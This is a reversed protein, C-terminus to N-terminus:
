GTRPSRRRPYAPEEAVATVDHGPERLAAAIVLSFKEDLLLRTPALQTM